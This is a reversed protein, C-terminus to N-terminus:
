FPRSKMKKSQFLRYFTKFFLIQVDFFNIPWYEATLFLGVVSRSHKWGMGPTRDLILSWCLGVSKLVSIAREWFPLFTPLLVALLQRNPPSLNKIEISIPRLFTKFLDQIWKGLFPPFGSSHKTQFIVCLFFAHVRQRRTFSSPAAQLKILCPM